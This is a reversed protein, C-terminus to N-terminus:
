RGSIFVNFSDSNVDNTFSMIGYANESLEININLSYLNGDKKWQSHTTYEFVDGYYHKQIYVGINRKKSYITISNNTGVIFYNSAFFQLSYKQNAIKFLEKHWEKSREIGEDAIFEGIDSSGCYPCYISDDSVKSNCQNCVKM